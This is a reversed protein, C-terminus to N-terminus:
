AYSIAVHSSNLRTSKRDATVLALGGQLLLCAAAPQRVSKMFGACMYCLTFAPTAIVIGVLVPPLEPAHFLKAWLNRTLFIVTGAVLSSPMARVIAYRVYAFVCPSKLDRGVFRMLASDMGYRSLLAAVMILSQALAFVGVGQTGYLRGLVVILVFSGVSTLGRATFTRILALGM